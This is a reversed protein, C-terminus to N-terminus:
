DCPRWVGRVFLCAGRTCLLPGYRDPVPLSPLEGDRETPSRLPPAECPERHAALDVDELSVVAARPPLRSPQKSSVGAGTVRPAVVRKGGVQGLTMGSGGVQLGMPAGAASSTDDATHARTNPLCNIPKLEHAMPGATAMAQIRGGVVVCM